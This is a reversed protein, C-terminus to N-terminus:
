VFATSSVVAGQQNQAVATLQDGAGPRRRPSPRILPPELDDGVAGERGRAAPNDEGPGCGVELAGDRERRVGLDDVGAVPRDEWAEDIGCM